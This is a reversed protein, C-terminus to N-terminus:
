WINPWRICSLNGLSYSHNETSRYNCCCYRITNNASDSILKLSMWHNIDFLQSNIVIMRYSGKQWNCPYISILELSWNKSLLASFWFISEMTGNIVTLCWFHAFMSSINTRPRRILTTYYCFPKGLEGTFNASPTCPGNDSVLRAFDERFM